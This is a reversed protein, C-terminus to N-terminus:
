SLWERQEKKSARRVSIIRCVENRITYTCAYLSGDVAGYANGRVEGYDRRSDIIDGILNALVFAGFALSVGHKALDSADKAEDFEIETLIIRCVRIGM